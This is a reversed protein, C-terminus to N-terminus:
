CKAACGAVVVGGAIIDHGVVYGDVAPKESM